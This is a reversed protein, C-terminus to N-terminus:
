FTVVKLFVISCEALKEFRGVREKWNLLLINYVTRLSM